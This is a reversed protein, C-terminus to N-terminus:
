AKSRYEDIQNFTVGTLEKSVEWLKQADAQNHSAQSSSVVVPFGGRENKGDPGYYQGGTVQPDVAARIIPLAGMAASQLIRGAIPRFIKVVPIHDALDTNSVGPHAAVSVADAGYEEFKRQLEYTFLLNALKSRGYAARGEYGQGGDYLLNDFDM